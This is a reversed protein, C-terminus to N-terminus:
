KSSYLIPEEKAESLIKGPEPGTALRPSSEVPPLLCLKKDKRKEIYPILCISVNQTHYRHVCPSLSAISQFHNTFLRQRKRKGQRPTNM